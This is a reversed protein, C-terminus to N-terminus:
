QVVIPEVTRKQYIEAFRGVKRGDPTLVSIFLLDDFSPSIARNEDTEDRLNGLDALWIGKSDTYTILPKSKVIRDKGEVLSIHVLAGAIPRKGDVELVQSYIPNPLSLTELVGSTKIKPLIRGEKDKKWLKGASYIRYYYATEPKLNKLVVFHSVSPNVIEDGFVRCRLLYQCAFFELTRWFRNPQSSLVVGGNTPKDTIWSISLSSDTINAIQVEKPPYSVGMLSLILFIIVVVGSSLFLPFKWKEQIKIKQIKLHFNKFNRTM